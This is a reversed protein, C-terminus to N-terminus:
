DHNEEKIFSVIITDFIQSNEVHITHGAEIIIHESNAIMTHMRKAIDCFKKDLSGTLLLVPQKLQSLHPWLNPQMGTGYDILAKAVYLPEHNLRTNHQRLAAAECLPRFTQFLPLGEWRKIFADYDIIMSAAQKLDHAIRANKDNDTELGPTSSELILKHIHSPYHIATYLAIRGGMSYGYLYVNNYKFQQITDILAQSIYEFDWTTSLDHTEGHGPCEILLIDVQQSLNSIYPTFTDVNGLFGHLMVLVEDNDHSIHKYNLM